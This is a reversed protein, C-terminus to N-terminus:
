KFWQKFWDFTKTVPNHQATRGCESWVAPETGKVFPLLVVNPCNEMSRTQTDREIWHWEINEPPTLTLSEFDLAESIDGWIRMAGTSGTLGIPRNDDRGVWVVGLRDAGFGAFWSDRLENSTGTKGAVTRGPKLQRNLAAGTGERVAYHLAASLLYTAQPPVVQSVDLGYRQLLTGNAGMVARISRLPSYFGGNAITHYMQTIQMPTLDVAGLLLSPFPKIEQTVGLQNIVRRVGQLGLDMGLRVTALNYSHSLADFLPVVGHSVNDFNNPAWATGNDLEVQLPSDDLPSALTYGGHALAALYVAPKIMSGVQRQALLARNFNNHRARRDGVVALVEGGAVDTIIAAGQLSAPDTGDKKDLDNLGSTLAQETAWQAEPDLTTFIRLGESRLDEEKYDRRLQERVLDAFAPFRSADPVGPTVGLPQRKLADLETPAIVGQQALVDLVVNRRTLARKPSRRPDYLSPGQVLGVLLAVDQIPLAALPAGFYFQAALGFGHIARRGDQGLYIENSYATLIEDKEFHLELLLAMLAEKVKRSLSREASLFYNKVLQQTLTSGGQVFGAARINAWVARALGRLDVGPHNEFHRDEVAYLARVLADPLEARTVLVRDENHAPSISAFHVPDLRVLSLPRRSPLELLETVGHDDFAVEFQMESEAGDWFRFPRSRVQFRQGQRNYSGARSQTADHRYHLWELERILQHRTTKAGPFLELPRAYVHAPVAWRKGEFEIRIVSDLYILYVAFLFGVLLLAHLWIWRKWSPVPTAVSKKKRRRATPPRRTRRKSM